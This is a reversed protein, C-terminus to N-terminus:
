PREFLKKRENVLEELTEVMEKLDGSDGKIKNKLNEIAEVFKLDFNYIEDLEEEKIKLQDFFGSYGYTAFRIADAIKTLKREILGLDDLESLKGSNIFELKKDDIRKRCEDIKSALYERLRKDTTRRDDRERYGKLGPIADLFKEIFNKESEKM